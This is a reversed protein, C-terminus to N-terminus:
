ARPAQDKSVSIAVSPHSAGAAASGFTVTDATSGIDALGSRTVVRRFLGDAVLGCGTATGLGIAQRGSTPPARHSSKFKSKQRLRSKTSLRLRNNQLQNWKPPLHRLRNMFM